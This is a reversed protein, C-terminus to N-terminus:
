PTPSESPSAWNCSLAGGGRGDESQYLICDTGDVNIHQVDGYINTHKKPVNGSPDVSTGQGGCGTLVILGVVAAILGKVIKAM